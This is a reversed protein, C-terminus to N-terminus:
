AIILYTKHLWWSTWHTDYHVDYNFGSLISSIFVPFTQLLKELMQWLWFESIPHRKGVFLTCSFLLLTCIWWKLSSLLCYLKGQLSIWLKRKIPYLNLCVAMKESQISSACGPKQLLNFMNKTDPEFSFYKIWIKFKHVFM